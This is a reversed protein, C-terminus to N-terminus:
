YYMGAHDFNLVLMRPRKKDEVTADAVQYWSIKKNKEEVTDDRDLWTCKLDEEANLFERAAM